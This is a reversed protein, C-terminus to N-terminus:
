LCADLYWMMQYWIDIQRMDCDYRCAPFLGGTGDRDYERRLFRVITRDVVYEDYHDNDMDSLGLNEIMRFFWKGTRNGMDPDGMIQEECRHALAVMMELVSCPRGDMDRIDFGTEYAFRDRLDTGDDARNADMDLLYVFEIEHLREFLMRYSPGYFYHDDCVLSLMWEFYRENM